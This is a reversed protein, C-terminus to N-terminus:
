SYAGEGSPSPQSSPILFLEVILGLPCAGMLSFGTPTSKDEGLPLLVLSSFLFMEYSPKFFYSHSIRVRTNLLGLTSKSGTSM